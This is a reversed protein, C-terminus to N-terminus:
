ARGELLAVPVLCGLKAPLIEVCHFGPLLDVPSARTIQQAGLDNAFSLQAVDYKPIAKHM